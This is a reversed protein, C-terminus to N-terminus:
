SITLPFVRTNAFYNQFEQFADRSGRISQKDFSRGVLVCGQTDQHTNGIHFICAYRGYKGAESEHSYVDLDPNVIRFTWGWKSSHYGECKYEGTPICSIFRKGGNAHEDRHYSQELTTLWAGDPRILIGQTTYDDAWIRKLIM